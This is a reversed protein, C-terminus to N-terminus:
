NKTNSKEEIKGDRTFILEKSVNIVKGRHKIFVDDFPPFENLFEQLEIVNM